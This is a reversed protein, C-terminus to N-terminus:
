LYFKPIYSEFDLIPTILIRTYEETLYNKNKYLLKYKKKNYFYEKNSYINNFSFLNKKISYYFKLSKKEKFKRKIKLLKLEFLM